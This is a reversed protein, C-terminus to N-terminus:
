KPYRRCGTQSASLNHVAIAAADKRGEECVPCRKPVDPLDRWSKRFTM